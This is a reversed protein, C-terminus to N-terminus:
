KIKSLKEEIEAVVNPNAAFWKDSETLQGVEFREVRGDAEEQLGVVLDCFLRVAKRQEETLDNEDCWETFTDDLCWLEVRLMEFLQRYAGAAKQWVVLQNKLNTLLECSEGSM